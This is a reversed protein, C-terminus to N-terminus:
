NTAQLNKSLGWQKISRKINILSEETAEYGGLSFASGKPLTMLDESLNHKLRYHTEMVLYGEYKDRSLAKFQGEYDVVGTGFPVCVAEGNQIIADKIHIHLLKDKIWEYGDPYPIEGQPDYIDNGPDWLAKIQPHNIASLLMATKNANSAYVSPDFEILIYIDEQEIIDFIKRYQEVIKPLAEAFDGRQWFTFGRIFKTGLAKALTICKKLIKIHEKIEAEDNLECKFLPSSIGCCELKYDTLIKKISAINQKNLEHPGKEWVSRIELGDLEYKKALKAAVELDQSIEDTIVGLKFM